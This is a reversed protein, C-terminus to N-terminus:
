ENLKKKKLKGVGKKRKTKAKRTKKNQDLPGGGGM